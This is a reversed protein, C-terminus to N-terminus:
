VVVVVFSPFGDLLIGSILRQCVHVHTHTCVHAYAVVEVLDRVREPGKTNGCMSQLKLCGGGGRAGMKRGRHEGSSRSPFKPVPQKAVLILTKSSYLKSPPPPALLLLFGRPASAALALM